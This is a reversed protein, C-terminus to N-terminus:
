KQQSHKDHEEPISAAVEEMTQKMDSIDINDLLISVDGGIIQTM